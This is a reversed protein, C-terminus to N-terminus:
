ISKFNIKKFISKINLSTALDSILRITKRYTIESKRNSYDTPQLLTLKTENKANM